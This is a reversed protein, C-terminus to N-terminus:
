SPYELLTKKEMVRYGNWVLTGLAGPGLYAFTSMNFLLQLANVRREMAILM